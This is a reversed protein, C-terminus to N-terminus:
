TWELIEAIQAAQTTQIYLTQGNLVLGDESFVAGREITIYKTASETAVFAIKARSTGGRIRVTIKKLGSSLVHAVETNALPISLNTIVPATAGQIVVTGGVNAVGITAM